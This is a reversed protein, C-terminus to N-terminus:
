KHGHSMAEKQPAKAPQQSPDFAKFLPNNFKGYGKKMSESMYFDAEYKIDKWMYFDPKEVGEYEFVLMAGGGEKGAGTTHEENHDHAMWIGPNNMEVIMDYREGPQMPLVDVYYPKPLPTRTRSWRTKVM